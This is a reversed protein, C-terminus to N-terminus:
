RRHRELYLRVRNIFDKVVQEPKKCESSTFREIRLIGAKEFFVRDRILDKQHDHFTMSDCEIIFNIGEIVVLFDVERTVRDGNKWTVRVPANPFFTLGNRDLEKAIELEQSSRFSLGKWETFPINKYILKQQKESLLTKIESLMTQQSDITKKLEAIKEEYHREAQEKVEIIDWKCATEFTTYLTSDPDHKTTIAGINELIETYLQSYKFNDNDVAEEIYFGPPFGASNYHEEKDSLGLYFDVFEEFVEGIPDIKNSIRIKEEYEIDAIEQEINLLAQRYDDISQDVGGKLVDIQKKIQYIQNATIEAM